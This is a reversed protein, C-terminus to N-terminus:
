DAGMLAECLPVNDTVVRQIPITNHLGLTPINYELTGAYCDDFTLTLTGDSGPPDTREVVTPYDFLGGSTVILNMASKGGSYTGQATLWRHGPDGLNATADEPPLETDYTFWALFVAGSDPLVSILIGQGDTDPNYWADNLGPNLNTEPGFPLPNEPDSDPLYIGQSALEGCLAANDNLVRQIPVVNQRGISPIDYEVTGTYCDDFTLILTGDSEPPDTRTVESPADFLGGSTLVIEMVSQNEVYVGQATLWRHGPDGLNATAGEPPLETDYTFWALFVAGTDPLVSILFGQGDTDPDYWADNLGANM